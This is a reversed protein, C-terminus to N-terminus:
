RATLRRAAVNLDAELSDAGLGLFTAKVKLKWYVKLKKGQYSIPGEFPVLMRFPLTAEVRDPPLSWTLERAVGYYRRPLETDMGWEMTATFRKPKQGADASWYIHGTLISGVAITESDLNIGIM